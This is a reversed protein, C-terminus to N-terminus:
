GGMWGRVVTWVLCDGCQLGCFIVFVCVVCCVCVCVCVCVVIVNEMVTDLEPKDM